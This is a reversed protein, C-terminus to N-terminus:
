ILGVLIDLTVIVVLRTYSGIEQQREIFLKPNTKLADKLIQKMLKLM